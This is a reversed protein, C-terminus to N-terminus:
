IRHLSSPCLIRKLKEINEREREREATAARHANWPDNHQQQQWDFWRRTRSNVNKKRRIGPVYRVHVIYYRIYYTKPRLILMFSIEFIGVLTCADRIYVQFRMITNTTLMEIKTDHVYLPKVNLWNSGTYRGGIHVTSKRSVMERKLLTIMFKINDRTWDDRFIQQFICHATPV